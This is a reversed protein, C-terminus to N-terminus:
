FRYALGFNLGQAWYDTSFETFGPRAIGLLDGGQAQSLNVDSDIQEGPRAVNSWYMFNYGVTAWLGCCVEFGLNVGIQPVIAFDDDWYTGINSPMALLGGDYSNVQTGAGPISTMTTTQGDITVYSRNNGLALTARTEFWWRNKKTETIIGLQVGNFYNDASFQDYESLTSGTNPATPSGLTLRNANILLNDDLRNYRWGLTWDIRWDCGRAMLHRVVVEVGQLSSTGQVSVAGSYLGPYSIVQADNEISDPTVNIFPRALIPFEATDGSFSSSAQGIAFYTGEVAMTDCHDFWYGIRARGGSQSADAMTETPFLVSTNPLGLVGANDLSTGPTSTTVLPPAWMGKGWWLLYDARLYIQQFCFGHPLIPSCGYRGVGGYRSYGAAQDAISADEFYQDAFIADGQGPGQGSPAYYTEGEASGTEFEYAPEGTTIQSQAGQAPGTAPPTAVTEPAPALRSSPARALRRHSQAHAVGPLFLVSLAAILLWPLPHISRASNEARLRFPLSIHASMIM